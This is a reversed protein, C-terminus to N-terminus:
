GNIQYSRVISLSESRRFSWDNESECDRHVARGVDSHMRNAVFMGLSIETWRTFWHPCNLLFSPHDVFCRREIAEELWHCRCWLKERRWTSWGSPIANSCIRTNTLISLPWGWSLWSTFSLSWDVNKIAPVCIYQLDFKILSWELLIREQKEDSCCVFRLRDHDAKQMLRTRWLLFVSSKRLSSQPTLTTEERGGVVLYPRNADLSWHRIGTYYQIPEAQHM